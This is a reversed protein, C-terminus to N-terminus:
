RLHLVALVEEGLLEGTEVFGLSAYLKQGVENDPEYSIGVDRIRDAQRFKELMWDMGFRGYGQGQCKEDVMLRVVFAQMKAATFNYGYL